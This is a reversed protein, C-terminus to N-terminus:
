DRLASSVAVRDSAPSFVRDGAYWGFEDRQWTDVRWGRGFSSWSVSVVCSTTYFLNWKVSADLTGEEGKPQKEILAALITCLDSESFEHAKPLAPEIDKDRAHKLLENASVHFVKEDKSKRALSLIQDNFTKWVFLGSRSKFYKKPDIPGAKVEVKEDVVKLVIKKRKEM